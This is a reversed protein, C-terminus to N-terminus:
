GRVILFTVYAAYGILLGAGEWRELFRERSGTFMAVFLVATAGVMVALDVNGGAPLPLPRLVASLGLICFVNFINSGVINGVAIDANNRWAAVVSTALEPLSTGAAVLTLAVLSESVGLRAALGVAGDVVLKAGVNLGVLGVAVRLIARRVRPRPGSAAPGADGSRRVAEVIYYLFILFFLWLMLGDGRGLGSAEGGDIWSDNAAIGLAVAAMLAFPIEKWVTSQRVALPRVLAAVGLIVLVNFINSGVVNGLAIETRGQGSAFLSVVLEPMSTGFAVVTLGVVLDSVGVARALSTAGEVLLGAGKVLLALGVVLILIAVM